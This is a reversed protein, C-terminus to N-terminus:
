KGRKGGSFKFAKGRWRKARRGKSYVRVKKNVLLLIMLSVIGTIYFNIKGFSGTGPLISKKINGVTKTIDLNEETIEFDVSSSLCNYNDPAKIETLRYKGVELDSFKIKGDEGTTKNQSAFSDDVILNGNGDDILKDIKFEAGPLVISNDKSDVKTIEISGVAIPPEDIPTYVNEFEIKQINSIEAELIGNNTLDEESTTGDKYYIKASTKCTYNEVDYNKEVFYYKENNICNITWDYEGNIKGNYKFLNLESDIEPNTTQLKFYPKSAQPDVATDIGFSNSDSYTMLQNEITEPLGTVKKSIEVPVSKAMMVGDIHYGNTVERKLVYYRTQYNSLDKVEGFNVAPQPNNTSRLELTISNDRLYNLIQSDLEQEKKTNSTIPIFDEKGKKRIAEIVIQTSDDTNDYSDRFLKRINTDAEEAYIDERGVVVDTTDRLYIHGIALFETYVTNASSAVNGSVDLITGNKNIAILVLNSFNRYQATFNSGFKGLNHEVNDTGMVVMDGDSNRSIETGPSIYFTKGQKDTTRWGAFSIERGWVDSSGEATDSFTDEDKGTIIYKGNVENMNGYYIFRNNETDGGAVDIINSSDSIEQLESADQPFAPKYESWRGSSLGLNDINGNVDYIICFETDRDYEFLSFHSNLDAENWILYYSKNINGGGYFNLYQTGEINSITIQGDYASSSNKHVYVYSKYETDNEPVSDMLTINGESDMCLYQKESNVLQYYYGNDKEIGNKFTWLNSKNDVLKSSNNYFFVNTNAVIANKNEANITSDTFSANKIKSGNMSTLIYEKGELASLDSISVKDCIVNNSDNSKESMAEIEKSSKGEKEIKVMNLLNAIGFIAILCILMLYKKFKIKKKNM